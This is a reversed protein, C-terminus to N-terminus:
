TRLGQRGANSRERYHYALVIGVLFGALHGEWSVRPHTPVLGYLLWGYLLIITISLLAARLSNRMFGSLMLFGALGYVLMSAGIHVAPRAFLWVLTGSGVICMFIIEAAIAPYFFQLALLFVALPVTNSIIHLWSGHVFPALLIGILGFVSRPRVGFIGMELSFFHGVLFVAWMILVFRLVFWIKSWM